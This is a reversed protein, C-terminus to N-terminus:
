GEEKFADEYRRKIERARAVDKSQRGKFGGWLVIVDAGAIRKRSYYVRMGNKWKAEFLGKKLNKSGVFIGAKMNDLRADVKVQDVSGLSQYWGSFEATKKITIHPLKGM